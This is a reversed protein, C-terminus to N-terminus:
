VSVISQLLDNYAKATNRLDIDKKDPIECGGLNVINKDFATAEIAQNALGHSPNSIIISDCGKIYSLAEDPSVRGVWNCQPNARMLTEHTNEAVLGPM